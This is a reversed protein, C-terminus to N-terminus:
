RTVVLNYFTYAGAYIVGLSAMIVLSVLGVVVLPGVKAATRAPAARASLGRRLDSAVRFALFVGLGMLLWSGLYTLAFTVPNM